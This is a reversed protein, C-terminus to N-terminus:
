EYDKKIREEWDKLKNKRELDKLQRDIRKISIDMFMKWITFLGVVIGIILGISRLHPDIESLIFTTVWGLDLVALLYLRIQNM